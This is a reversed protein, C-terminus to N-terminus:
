SRPRGFGAQQSTLAICGPRSCPHSRPEAPVSSSQQSSGPHQRAALHVSKPFGPNRQHSKFPRERRHLSLWRTAADAPRCVGTAILGTATLMAGTHVGLAALALALPGSEAMALGSVNGVCLPALAPVLMLGAGHATSMMFSWLALGAHGAPARAVKPLCGSLHAIVAAALLGGTLVQLWTRDMNLGWVGAGAVVAVSAVHGVAIPLLARLAQGRDGSRVGWAAAWVWGSAPNLGHLAGMGAVVLWPWLDSM